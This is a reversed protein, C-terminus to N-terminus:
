CTCLLRLACFRKGVPGVEQGVMGPAQQGAVVAAAQKQLLGELVTRISMENATAAGAAHHQVEPLVGPGPVSSPGQAGPSVAQTHAQSCAGPLVVLRGLAALVPAFATAQRGVLAGHHSSLM